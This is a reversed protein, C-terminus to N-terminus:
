FEVSLRLDLVTAPRSGSCELEFVNYGCRLWEPAVQFQTRGEEVVGARLPNGNLAVRVRSASRPDRVDVRAVVKPQPSRGELADGVHLPVRYTAGPRVELPRKPSVITRTAYQEINAVREAFVLASTPDTSYVKDRTQLAEPDGLEGFLNAWGEEPFLNFLYIGDAGLEWASLAQARFSRISTYDPDDYWM